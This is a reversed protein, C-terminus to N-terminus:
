NPSKDNRRLSISFANEIVKWRVSLHSKNKSFTPPLELERGNSDDCRRSSCGGVKNVGKSFRRSFRAQSVAL